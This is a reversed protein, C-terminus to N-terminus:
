DVIPYELTSTQGQPPQDAIQDFIHWYYELIELPTEPNLLSNAVRPLKIASGLDPIEPSGEESLQPEVKTAESTEGKGKRLKCSKGEQIPDSHLSITAQLSKELGGVQSQVKTYAAFSPGVVQPIVTSSKGPIAQFGVSAKSELRRVIEDIFTTRGLNV